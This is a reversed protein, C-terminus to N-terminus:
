KRNPISLHSRPPSTEALMAHAADRFDTLLRPERFLALPLSRRGGALCRAGRALADRLCEDVNRAGREYMLPGIEVGDELESGVKLASIRKAFATSFARYVPCPVCLRNDALCDQGSAVFNAGVAPGIVEDLASDDLVILPEDGGPEMVPRTTTPACQGAIKQDIETCGTFSMACVRMPACSTPSNSRHLKAPTATGFLAPLQSPRGSRKSGAREAIAGSLGDHAEMLISFDRNSYVLASLVEADSSDACKDSGNALVSQSQHQM